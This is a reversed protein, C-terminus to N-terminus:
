LFRGAPLHFRGPLAFYLYIPAILLLVSGIVGTILAGIGLRPWFISLIFFALGFISLTL